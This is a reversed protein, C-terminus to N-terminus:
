SELTGTSNKDYSIIFNHKDKRELNVEQKMKNLRIRRRDTSWVRRQNTMEGRLKKTEMRKSDTNEPNKTVRSRCHRFNIHFLAQIQTSEWEDQVTSQRSYCRSRWRLLETMESQIEAKCTCFMEAMIDIHYLSLHLLGFSVPKIFCFDPFLLSLVVSILGVPSFCLVPSSCLSTHWNDEM